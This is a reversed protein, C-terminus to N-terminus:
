RGLVLALAAVYEPLPGAELAPPVELWIDIPTGGCSQPGRFGRSGEAARKLSYSCGGVSGDLNDRGITLSGLKGGYLGRAVWGDGEKQLVLDIRTGGVSGDIREATWHMEIPQGFIRGRLGDGVRSIQATSGTWSNGSLNVEVVQNSSTVKLAQPGDSEPHHACGLALFAASFFLARVM